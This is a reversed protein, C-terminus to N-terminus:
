RDSSKNNPVLLNSFAYGAVSLPLTETVAMVRCGFQILRERM